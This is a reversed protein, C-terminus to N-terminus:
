KEGTFFQIPLEIEEKEGVARMKFHPKDIGDGGHSKFFEIKKLEQKGNDRLYELVALYLTNAHREDICDPINNFYVLPENKDFLSPKM